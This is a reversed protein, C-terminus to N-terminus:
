VKLVVRDARVRIYFREFTRFASLSVFVVGPQFHMSAGETVVMGGGSFLHSGLLPFFFHLLFVRAGYTFLSELRSKLELRVRGFVRVRFRVFAVLTPVSELRCTVQRFM